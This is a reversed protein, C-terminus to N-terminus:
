DQCKGKDLPLDQSKNSEADCYEYLNWHNNYMNMMVVVATSSKWVRQSRHKHIRKTTGWFFTISSLQRLQSCCSDMSEGPFFSRMNLITSRM